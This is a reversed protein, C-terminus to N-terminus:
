NAKNNTLSVSAIIFIEVFPILVYVCACMLDCQRFWFFTAAFSILPAFTDACLAFSFSIFFFRLSISSPDLSTSSISLHHYLDSQVAWYLPIKVVKHCHSHSGVPTNWECFVYIYTHKRHFRVSDWSTIFTRMVRMCNCIRLSRAVVMWRWNSSNWQLVFRLKYTEQLLNWRSRKRKGNASAWCISAMMESNWISFSRSCVDVVCNMKFIVGIDTHINSPLYVWNNSIRM